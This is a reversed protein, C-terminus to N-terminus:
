STASTWEGVYLYVFLNRWVNHHFIIVFRDAMYFFTLKKRDIQYEAETLLVPVKRLTIIEKCTQLAREEDAEKTLYFGIESETAQRVVKKLESESSANSEEAVGEGQEEVKVDTIIGIECKKVNGQLIVYDGLDLRLPTKECIFRTKCKTVFSQRRVVIM